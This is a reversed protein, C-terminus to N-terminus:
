KVPSEEVSSSEVEGAGTLFRDPPVIWIEVRRNLRHGKNGPKNPVVPHYKSFGLVGIRDPDLGASQVVDQVAVARHVSLYWNNPHRRKTSPKAIPMNDTHGAVYIHFKKAEDSRVIQVFDKLVSKASDRVNDKGPEFTLDAKLKVMGYEPLYEVLDPNAEAFDQLAKDVEAPLRVGTPKPWDAQMADKYKKALEDFDSQLQSHADELVALEQQAADLSSRADSLESQLQQNEMRVSELTQNVKKLQEEKRRNAARCDDLESKSVCGSVVLLAALVVVSKGVAAMIKM